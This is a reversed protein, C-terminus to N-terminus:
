TYTERNLPLSTTVSFSGISTVWYMLHRRTSSRRLSGHGLCNLERDESEPRARRVRQEGLADDEDIAAGPDDVERVAGDRHEAAYKQKRVSTSCCPQGTPEAIGTETSSAASRPTTM